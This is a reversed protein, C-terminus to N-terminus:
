KPLTHQRQPGNSGSFGRKRINQFVSLDGSHSVEYEFPKLKSLVVEECRTGHFEILLNRTRELWHLTGEEFIKAEAGEVDLKVLDVIPSDIRRFLDDLSIGEIEAEDNSSNIVYIASEQGMGKGQRCVKLPATMSWLALPMIQIRDNFPGLNRRCVELNAEDPEIVIARAQPYKSLLFFSTAGINAGGDVFFRVKQDSDLCDYDRSRFVQRVIHLDSTNRRFYVRHSYGPIPLSVLKMPAKDLCHRQFIRRLWHELDARLLRYSSVIGLRPLDKPFEVIIALFHWVAAAVSRPSLLKRLRSWDISAM